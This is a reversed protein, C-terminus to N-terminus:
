SQSRLLEKREIVLKNWRNKYDEFEYWLRERLGSTDGTNESYDMYALEKKPYLDRMENEIDEVIRKDVQNM